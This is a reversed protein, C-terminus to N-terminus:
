KLKLMLVLATTIANSVLNVQHNGLVDRGCVLVAGPTARGSVKGTAPDYLSVQLTAGLVSDVASGLFSLAGFLLCLRATEASLLPALSAAQVVLALTAGGMVAAALGLASVGGNTGPPVRKGNLILRPQGKALVGVESSWTDGIACCLSSMIGLEGWGDGFAIAVVACIAGPLSNSLVQIASRNGSAVYGDEISSKRLKGLRTLLTSSVFFWLLAAAFHWGAATFLTGVVFAAIAGDLSLSRRRLSLYAVIAAWM